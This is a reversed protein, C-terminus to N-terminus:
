HKLHLQPRHLKKTPAPFPQRVGNSFLMPKYDDPVSSHMVPSNRYREIHAKLGQHPGSWGLECVKSTPLVWRTFGDFLTWFDATGKEDVLNVFAYGLNANRNFDMPLYLFDYRGAFGEADIMELLM